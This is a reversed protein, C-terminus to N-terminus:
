ASKAGKGKSEAEVLDLLEQHSHIGMKQYISYVHSKVTPTSLVLKDKIFQVNRGKALLLFIERQRPSLKFKESLDECTRSWRGKAQLPEEVFKSDVVELVPEDNVLVERFETKMDKFFAMDVVVILVVLSFCAVLLSAPGSGFDQLSVVAVAWGIFFGTSNGTKSSSIEWLCRVIDYESYAYATHANIIEYCGFLVFLIAASVLVGDSPWAVGFIFCCVSAIPPFLKPLINCAKKELDQRRLLLMMLSAAAINSLGIVIENFPCFWSSLVACTVFGLPISYLLSFLGKLLILKRDDSFPIQKELSGALLGSSTSSESFSSEEGSWRNWAAILFVASVAPLMATMPAAIASGIFPSLALVLGGSLFAGCVSHLQQRRSLVRFRNGWTLFFGAQGLGGIIWFPFLFEFALPAFFTFSPCLCLICPVVIGSLNRKAASLRGTLFFALSGFAVGAFLAARLLGMDADDALGVPIVASDWGILFAWAVFCSYGAVDCLPIIASEPPQPSSSSERLMSTQLNANAGMFVVEGGRCNM